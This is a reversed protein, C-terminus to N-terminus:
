RNRWWDRIEIGIFGFIMSAVAPFFLSMLGVMFFAGGNNPKTSFVHINGIGCVIAGIAIIGGIAAAFAIFGVFISTAIDKLGRM